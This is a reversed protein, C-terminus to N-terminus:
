AHGLLRPETLPPQESRIRRSLAWSVISLVGPVFYLPLVWGGPPTGTAATDILYFTGIGILTMLGGLGERFWLVVMGVLSALMCFMLSGELPTLAPIGEVEVAHAVLFWLFMVVLLGGVIRATWRTFQILYSM